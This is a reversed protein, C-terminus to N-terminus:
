RDEKLDSELTRGEGPITISFNSVEIVEPWEKGHGFYDVPLTISVENWIEHNASYTAPETPFPDRGAVLGYVRDRRFEHTM